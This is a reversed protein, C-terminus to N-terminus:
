ALKHYPCMQSYNAEECAMGGRNKDMRQKYKEPFGCLQLGIAGEQEADSEFPLIGDEEM